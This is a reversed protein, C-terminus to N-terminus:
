MRNLNAEELDGRRRRPSDDDKAATGATQRDRKGVRRWAEQDHDTDKILMSLLDRSRSAFDAAFAESPGTM